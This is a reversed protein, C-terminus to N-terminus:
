VNVGYARCLAALGGTACGIKIRDAHRLMVLMTSALGLAQMMEHVAFSICILTAIAMCWGPLWLMVALFVTLLLGTIFRQKM